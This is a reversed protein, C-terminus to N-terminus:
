IKLDDFTVHEEADNMLNTVRRETKYNRKCTMIFQGKELLLWERDVFAVFYCESLSYKKLLISKSVPESAVIVHFSHPSDMDEQGYVESAHRANKVLDEASITNKIPM